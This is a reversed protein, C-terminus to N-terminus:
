RGERDLIVAIIQENTMNQIKEYMQDQHAAVKVLEATLSLRDMRALESKRKDFPVNARPLRTM